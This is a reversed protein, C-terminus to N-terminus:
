DNMEWTETCIRLYMSHGVAYRHKASIRAEAVAGSIRQAHISKTPWRELSSASAAPLPNCAAPYPLPRYPSHLLHCHCALLM